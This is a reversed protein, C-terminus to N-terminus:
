SEAHCLGSIIVDAYSEGIAHADVSSTNPNFWRHTWSVMGMVGYALVWPEGVARFTGDDIGEAVIDTVAKEYRRNVQRMKTAWTKRQPAVQGMNEQLYLFLLPYNEGYSEVLGVILERLKERPSRASDRIREAEALNAKVLDTVLNDFLEDKSSFYYYLSARDTGLEEAVQALTTGRFGHRRFVTAAAALIEQQRDEYGANRRGRALARRQGIGSETESEQAPNMATM